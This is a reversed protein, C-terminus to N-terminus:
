GGLMVFLTGAAIACAYPLPGRRRVRHCELRWVRAPFGPRATASCAASSSAAALGAPAELLRGLLLYLGALVGGALAIALLVAPVKWPPVLLAVAGLLKVDGGGLWGRRWCGLALLFVTLAALVAMVAQMAAIRLVLGSLALALSIGDPITRVALDQLAAYGLLPVAILAPLWPLALLEVLASTM